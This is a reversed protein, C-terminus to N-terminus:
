SLTISSDFETSMYISIHFYSVRFEDCRDHSLSVKLLTDDRVNKRIMIASMMIMTVVVMVLILILMTIIIIM